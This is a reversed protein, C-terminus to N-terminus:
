KKHFNPQDDNKEIELPNETQIIPLEPEHVVIENFNDDIFDLVAQLIYENPPTQYSLIPKGNKRQYIVKAMEFIHQSPKIKVETM